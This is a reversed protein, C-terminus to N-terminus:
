QYELWLQRVHAYRVLYLTSRRYKQIYKSGLWFSFGGSGEDWSILFQPTLSRSPALVVLGLVLSVTTFGILSIAIFLRPKFYQSKVAPPEQFCSTIIVRVYRTCYAMCEERALDIGKCGGKRKCLPTLSSVSIPSDQMGM